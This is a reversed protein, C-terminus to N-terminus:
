PMAAASLAPIFPESPPFCGSPFSARKGRRRLSAAQRYAQLFDQFQRRLHTLVERSSAHIFRMMPERKPSRPRQRPSQRLIKSIGLAATGNQRHRQKTEEEIDLVLKLLFQHRLKPNLNALCPLTDLRLSLLQYKGRNRGFDSDNKALYTTLPWKGQHVGDDLLSRISHLGPWELPSTVLGEKCGQELLYRLRRLQTEPEQSVIQLRYRRAFISGSRARLRNLERAFNSQFYRMFDALIKADPAWLLLHYHNSLMAVYYVRVPYRDKAKALIGASLLQVAPDPRLLYREELARNSVEVISGGPPIFRPKRPM